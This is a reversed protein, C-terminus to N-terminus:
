VLPVEVPKPRTMKSMRPNRSTNHAETFAGNESNSLHKSCTSLLAANVRICPYMAGPLEAQVQKESPAIHRCVPM